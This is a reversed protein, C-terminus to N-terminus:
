CVIPRRPASRIRRLVEAPQAPLSISSGRMVDDRDALADGSPTSPRALVRPRAQRLAFLTSAFMLHDDCIILQV